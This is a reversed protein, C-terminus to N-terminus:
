VREYPDFLREYERLAYRDTMGAIYDCIVRELPVAPQDRRVTPPLQRPDALYENFLSEIFRTAKRSMRILRYHRYFNEKLFSRLQKNKEAMEASYDVVPVNLRRVDDPARVDNQELNEHTTLVVDTIQQNILSRIIQYLRRTPDLHCVKEAQEQIAEDWVDLEALQDLSLIGASIGDDLDHSNYAIEDALNAIQAEVSAYQGPQFEATDFGHPANHKAIGERTEWTLNLGQFSPYRWELYDIVRLSQKNHQFGGYDRMLQDLAEEGCHGFPPHGLDHALAIAAALDQNAGLNRAITESVGATEMTHTLRTRYHDGEHYVFVQTKYELRRFSKSHVIRDRDRQFPTRWPAENEPHIRGRSARSMVAYSALTREEVEELRNRDVIM